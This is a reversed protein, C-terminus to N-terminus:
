PTRHYYTDYGARWAIGEDMWAGDNLKEGAAGAIFAARLLKYEYTTKNSRRAPYRLRAELTALKKIDNTTM